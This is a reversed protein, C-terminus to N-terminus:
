DASDGRTDNGGTLSDGDEWVEDGVLAVPRGLRLARSGGAKVVLREEDGRCCM